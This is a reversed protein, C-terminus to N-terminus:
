GFSAVRTVTSTGSDYSASIKRMFLMLQTREEQSLGALVAENLQRSVAELEPLVTRAKETVNLVSVRMDGELPERALLGMRELKEVTRSVAARDVGIFRVVDASSICGGKYVAMLVSFQAVSVGHQQLREEFTRRVHNHVRILHFNFSDVLRSQEKM